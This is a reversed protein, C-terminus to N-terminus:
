YEQEQNSHLISTTPVQPHATVQQDLIIRRLLLSFVSAVGPSKCVHWFASWLVGILARIFVYIYKATSCEPPVACYRQGYLIETNQIPQDQHCNQSGNTSVIDSIIDYQCTSLGTSLVHVDTYACWIYSHIAEVRSFPSIYVHVLCGSVTPPDRSGFEPLWRGYNVISGSCIFTGILPSCQGGINCDGQM